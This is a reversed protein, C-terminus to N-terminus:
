IFVWSSSTLTWCCSMLGYVVLMLGYCFMYGGEVAHAFCVTGRPVPFGGFLNTENKLPLLWLPELTTAGCPTSGVVQPVDATPLSL